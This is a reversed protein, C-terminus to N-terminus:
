QGKACMGLQVACTRKQSLRVHSKAACLHAKSGFALTDECVNSLVEFDGRELHHRTEPDLHVPEKNATFYRENNTKM